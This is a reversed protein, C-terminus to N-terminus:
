VIFLMFTLLDWYMHLAIPVLINKSKIFTYSFIISLIMLLLFALSTFNSVFVGNSIWIPFHIVLFMIANIILSLWKRKQNLTVNLFLGRFVLEETLGVFLLVIIDDFGFSSVIEIKGNMIIAVALNYATFILFFPLYKLWNLKTSFMDKLSVFVDSKYKHILCAAPLTWLLNKIIGDEILSRLVENEIFNNIGKFVVLEALAWLVYFAVVYIALPIMKKQKTM